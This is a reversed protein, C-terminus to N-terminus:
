YLPDALVLLHFSTESLSFAGGEVLLKYKTTFSFLITFEPRQDRRM